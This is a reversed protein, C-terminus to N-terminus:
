DPAGLEVAKEHIKDANAHITGILSLIEAPTAHQGRDARAKLDSFIAVERVGGKLGAGVLDVVDGGKDGFLGHAAKTLLDIATPIFPGVLQFLAAGGALAGGIAM